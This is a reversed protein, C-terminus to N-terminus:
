RPRKPPWTSSRTPCAPCKKLNHQVTSVCNACTMGLVPLTVEKTTM